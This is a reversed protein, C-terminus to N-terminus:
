HTRTEKEMGVSKSIQSLSEDLSLPNEPDDEWAFFWTYSEHICPACWPGARDDANCAVDKGLARAGISVTICKIASCPTRNIKEM